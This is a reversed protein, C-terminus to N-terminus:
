KLVSELLVTVVKAAQARTAHAQPRAYRKGTANDIDGTILGNAACWAMSDQAFPQTEGYDPMAEFAARSWVTVDKGQSAAYRRMMVALQARTIADDPGFKGTDKGDDTQYGTIIGNARCWEIAATYYVRTPVDQFKSVTGYAGADTTANSRPNAHRFIMTALQARTIDGEPNFYGTLLQSEAYKTGGMLGSAVVKGVWGERVYWADAPTDYFKGAQIDNQRLWWQGPALELNLDVSTSIGAVHGASTVQWFAHDRWYGSSTATGDYRAVWRVWRDFRPDTLKERWWSLSAYVGARYGAAEIMECFAAAVAYFDTAKAVEADEMDFFVPYALKRGGILKLAHRAESQAYAVNDAYSYLYTGYPIGLRECEDANRRWYEDEYKDKGDVIRESAYGCRIIAYSVDDQRAQNWDIVKNHSSVDIGRKIAGAIVQNERNYYKGKVNTWPTIDGGTFLSAAGVGSGEDGEVEIPEGNRYRWSNERLDDADTAGAVEDARATGAGLLTGAGLVLGAGVLKNFERRSMNSMTNNHLNNSM